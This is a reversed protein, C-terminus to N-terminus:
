KAHPDLIRGEITGIYPIGLPTFDVIRDVIMLQMGDVAGGTGQGSVHLPIIWHDGEQVRRGQWTGDWTGGADLALSFTGWAPGTYDADLNSNIEVTMDGSVQPDSSEVRSIITLGRTHTRSGPPCPQMPDGTPEFGPCTVTGLSLIEGVPPGLLGFPDFTETASVQTKDAARTQGVPATSIVFLLIFLIIVLGRVKMTDGIRPQPVLTNIFERAWRSGERKGISFLEM